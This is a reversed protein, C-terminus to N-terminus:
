GPRAAPQCPPAMKTTSGMPQVFASTMQWGSGAVCSVKLTRTGRLEIQTGGGKPRVSSVATLPM